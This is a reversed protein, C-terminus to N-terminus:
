YWWCVDYTACVGGGVSGVSKLACLRRILGFHNGESRQGEEGEGGNAREGGGLLSPRVILAHGASLRLLDGVVVGLEDAVVAVRERFLGKGLVEHVVGLAHVREDVGAGLTSGCLCERQEGCGEAVAVLEHDALALLGRDVELLEVDLVVAVIDDDSPLSGVSCWDGIRSRDNAEDHDLRLLSRRAVLIRPDDVGDVGFEVGACPELVELLPTDAGSM